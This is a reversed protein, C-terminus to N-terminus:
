KALAKIIARAKIAIEDREAKPTSDAVIGGGVHFYAQDKICTVTRIAVNWDANGDFGFYGIAGMSVGRPVPELENLIQMARIKPAGTISGCPFAAMFADLADCGPKLRGEVTSVLHHLTPFTRLEFLSPVEISGFECVRGLDNRLLDVIMVNEARDKVSSQLARRIMSDAEETHGRQMTGKIPQATVVGDQVRLFREPSNSVISFDNWELLASFPMPHAMLHVYLQIPSFHLPACFRRTLNAQYIDGASIYALVTEVSAQYEDISTTSELGAPLAINDPMAPMEPAEQLEEVLEEYFVLRADPLPLDSNVPSTFARPELERAFEYSFYGIAAGQRGIYEASWQLAHRLEEVVPGRGNRFPLGPRETHWTYADGNIDCFAFPRVGKLRRGEFDLITNHSLM